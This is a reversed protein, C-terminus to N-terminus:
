DCTCVNNYLKTDNVFKLVSSPVGADIYDIYIVFLAPGLVSGQQIGSTVPLWESKVGNIVIRQKRNHLCNGIWHRIKFM